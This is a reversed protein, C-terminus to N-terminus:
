SAVSKSAQGTNEIAEVQLYLQAGGIDDPSIIEVCITVSGGESVDYSDREFGVVINDASFLTTFTGSWSISLYRKGQADAMFAPVVM